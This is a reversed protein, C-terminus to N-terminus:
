GPLDKLARYKWSGANAGPLREGVGIVALRDVAVLADSSDIEKRQRASLQACIQGWNIPEGKKQALLHVKRMLNSADGGIAVEHIGLVWRTLHDILNCARYIMGPSIQEGLEGDASAQHLLHLLGAVRLVKGPAQLWAASMADLRSSRADQNCRLEYKFFHERAKDALYLEQRPLRHVWGIVEALHQRANLSNAVEEESDDGSLPVVRVPIPVFVFRAWLDLAVGNALLGQPPVSKLAGFITLQCREYFRRGGGAGVRLASPGKGDYADLLQQKDGDAKRYANLSGFLEALDRRKVMLGLGRAEHHQLQEDLGKVTYSTCALVVPRKICMASKGHNDIKWNDLDNKSHRALDEEIPKLPGNILAEITPRKKSGSKGVISCYLNLPAELELKQSAIVKSGLKQVGAAASLVMMLATVDDAPLCQILRKVTAALSPPLM